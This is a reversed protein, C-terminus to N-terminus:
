RRCHADLPYGRRVMGRIRIRVDLSKMARQTLLREIMEDEEVGRVNPTHRPLEDFVVVPCPGRPRCM